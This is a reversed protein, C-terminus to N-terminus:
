EVSCFPGNLVVTMPDPNSTSIQVRMGGFFGINRAQTRFGEAFDRREDEPLTCAIWQPGFTELRVACSGDEAAAITRTMTQGSFPERFRQETPTCDDLAAAFATMELRTKLGGFRYVAYGGAMLLALLAILVINRRRM